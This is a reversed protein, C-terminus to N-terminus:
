GEPYAFANLKSLEARAGADGRSLKGTFDRDAKLEAIKALAQGPTLANGFKQGGEGTVFDPEGTKAGIKQFLEMTAKLGMNAEMKDITAKDIGLGRVAAQAQAVNQQFAAGWATRLAADDAAISADLTAKGAAQAATAQENWWAALGEGAAKPIGLEHLKAAVGTAFEPPVGEPVPIKYGSPDSPRGLKDYFSALEAPAADPNPLVVTRGARDAGLLKELNVYSEVVQTPDTWGKNQVYGVRAEDAGALWAPAAVPTVAPETTLTTAASPAQAVQAPPAGGQGGDTPTLLDTM